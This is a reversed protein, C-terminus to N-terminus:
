IRGDAATAFAATDTHTETFIYTAQLWGTSLWDNIPLWACPPAYRVTRYCSNM